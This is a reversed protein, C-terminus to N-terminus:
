GDIYMDVYRNIGRNCQSQGVKLEGETGERNKSPFRRTCKEYIDSISLFFDFAGGKGVWGEDTRLWGMNAHMEGVWTQAKVGGSVFIDISFLSPSFVRCALHYTAPFDVCNFFM